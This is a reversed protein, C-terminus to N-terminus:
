VLVFNELETRDLRGAKRQEGHMMNEWSKHYAHVDSWDTFVTNVESWKVKERLIVFRLHAPVKNNLEQELNSFKYERRDYPLSVEVYLVGDEMWSKATYGTFANVIRNISETNLKGQGRIRAMITQKRDELTSEAAPVINLISEWQKVRRESMTTLYADSLVAEGAVKVSSLEPSEGGIIAQFELINQIVPPYYNLLREEYTM